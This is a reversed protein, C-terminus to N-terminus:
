SSVRCWSTLCWYWKSGSRWIGAFSVMYITVRLWFKLKRSTRGQCTDLVLDSSCDIEEIVMGLVTAPM